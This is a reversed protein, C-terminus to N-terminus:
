GGTVQTSDGSMYCAIGSFEGAADHIYFLDDSVVGTGMTVIGRINM